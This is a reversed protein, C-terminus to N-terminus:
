NVASGATILKYNKEYEKINTIVKKSLKTIKKSKKNIESMLENKKTKLKARLHEQFLQDYNTNNDYNVEVNLNNIQITLPPPYKNTESSESNQSLVSMSDNFVSIENDSINTSQQSMSKKCYIPNNYDTTYLDSYHTIVEKDINNTDVGNGNVHSLIGDYFYGAYNHLITLLNKDKLNNDNSGDLRTVINKIPDYVIQKTFTLICYISKELFDATINDKVRTLFFLASIVNIFNNNKYCLEIATKIGLNKIDQIYDCGAMIASFIVFEQELKFFTKIHFNKLVHDSSLKRKKLDNLIEQKNFYECNGFITLKFLVRKADYIILDSDETLIYDIYNIKELYVLQSDSEYPAVIVEVNINKLFVVLNDLIEKDVTYVSVEIKKDINYKDNDYKKYEKYRIENIKKDVKRIESATNKINLKQGDLIIVPRIKHKKFLKLMKNYYSLVKKMPRNETLYMSYLGKYVWSLGDVGITSGAFNSLKEAVFLNKLFKSLGKIGM